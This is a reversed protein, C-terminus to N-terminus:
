IENKGAFATVDSDLFTCFVNQSEKTMLKHYNTVASAKINNFAVHAGVVILLRRVTANGDCCHYRSRAVVYRKVYTIKNFHHNHYQYHLKLLRYQLSVLSFRYWWHWHDSLQLSKKGTVCYSSARVLRYVHTSATCWLQFEKSIIHSVM